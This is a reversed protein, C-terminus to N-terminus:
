VNILSVYQSAISGITFQRVHASNDSRVPNNLANLLEHAMAVHDGVPVLSGYKGDSLIEAPGYTCNTSVVPLGLALAEVLVVGFGEWASSLAFVAARNMFRYPNPEFGPLAVDATLRQEVVANEIQSRDSGEGLILLRAPRSDRVLRFARVLMSFDKQKELRGVALVVPPEGAQFWPHEVPISAADYLGDSIVPNYIVQFRSRHIGTQVSLDDAVGGCVAVIHDASSLAWRSWLPMLQYKLGPTNAVIKSMTNHETAILKVNQRAVARALVAAASSHTMAAILAEPARVRLYRALKPVSMLMRGCGLDFVRIGSGLQQGMGGGTKGVVLDVEAGHEHLGSALNTFVREVGGIELTPVLLAIRM